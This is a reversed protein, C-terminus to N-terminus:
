HPMDGDWGVVGTTAGARGPDVGKLRHWVLHRLPGRRASAYIAHRACPNKAYVRVRAYSRNCREGIGGWQANSDVRPAPLPERPVNQRGTPPLHASSKASTKMRSRPDEGTAALMLFGRM